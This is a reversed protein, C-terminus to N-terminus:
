IFELFLNTPTEFFRSIRMINQFSGKYLAEDSKKYKALTNASIGTSLSLKKISCRRTECLLRLITKEKEIQHFHEVLSSFPMEHFIPYLDMMKEFSLKLLIYSIPKKTVLFLEFCSAGCWYADDYVGFSNDSISYNNTIDFFIEELSKNFYEDYDDKELKKVLDSNSIAFSFFALNTQKQKAIVFLRAFLDKLLPLDFNNM